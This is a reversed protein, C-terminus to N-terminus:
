KPVPLEMAMACGVCMRWLMRSLAGIVDLWRDCSRIVANMAAVRAGAQSDSQAFIKM